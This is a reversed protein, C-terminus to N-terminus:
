STKTHIAGFWEQLLARQAGWKEFLVALTGFSNEKM